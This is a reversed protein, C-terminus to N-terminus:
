FESLRFKSIRCFYQKKMFSHKKLAKTIGAAAGFAAGAIPRIIWSTQWSGRIISVRVVLLVGIAATM